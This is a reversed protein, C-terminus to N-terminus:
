DRDYGWLGAFDRELYDSLAFVEAKFRSRLQRTLREDPAFPEAYIMRRRFADLVQRRPGQPTLAKLPRKVAGALPGRGVTLAQVLANARQSRPRVTPNAQVVEIMRSDKVELFRLVARVTAENDRRFDEYALVLVQEPAFVARYRRLQEVYRVHESYLLMQPWYTDRPIHRGERRAPELALARGLDTETEIYAELFQLHLSRLFSVPERLVAVIKATPQSEAIAAAASRSWLYPTSAEGLRQGPRADEFLSLYEELTRAIGVPKRPPPRFRLESAFFWPEKEACMYIQPHAKLMEYLATTGSKPHGVVFFDPMHAFTRQPAVATGQVATM